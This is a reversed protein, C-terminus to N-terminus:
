ALSFLFAEAGATSITEIRIINYRVLPTRYLRM